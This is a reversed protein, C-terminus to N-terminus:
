RTKKGPSRMSQFADRDNIFHFIGRKPKSKLRMYCDDKGRYDLTMIQGKRLPTWNPSGRRSSNFRLAGAENLVFEDGPEAKKSRQQELENISPTM